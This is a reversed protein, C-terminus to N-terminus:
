RRLEKLVIELIEELKGSFRFGAALVHGGGNFRSALKNVDINKSRFSGKLKAEKDERVFLLM